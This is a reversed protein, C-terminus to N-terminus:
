RSLLRPTAPPHCPQPRETLPQMAGNPGAKCADGCSCTASQLLGIVVATNSTLGNTLFSAHQEGASHMLFHLAVPVSGAPAGVEIYTWRPPYSELDLSHINTSNQLVGSQEVV